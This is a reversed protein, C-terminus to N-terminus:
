IFYKCYNLEATQRSHRMNDALENRSLIDLNNIYFHSIYASRLNYITLIKNSNKFYSNIYHQIQRKTYPKNNKNQFLYINNSAYEDFYINLIIKLTKNLIPIEARGHKNIVKDKNLIVYYNNNNILLFNNIKDDEYDFRIIKLDNYDNRLPPHLVYLSLLLLKLMNKFTPKDNYIYILDNVKNLLDEYKIYNKQENEDLCQKYENNNHEKSYKLVEDYVIKYAEMQNYKKLIISFIILYDRKTTIAYNTNIIYNFIKNMNNLITDINFTLNLNKLIHTMVKKQYPKLFEM